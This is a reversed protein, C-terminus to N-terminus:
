LAYPVRSRWSAPSITRVGASIALGSEARRGAYWSERLAPRSRARAEVVGISVSCSRISRVCHNSAICAASGAVSGTSFAASLPRVGASAAPAM